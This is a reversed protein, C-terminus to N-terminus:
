FAALINFMLCNWIHYMIKFTNSLHHSDSSMEFLYRERRGILVRSLPATKVQANFNILAQM